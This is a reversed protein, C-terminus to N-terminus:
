TINAPWDTHSEYLSFHEGPTDCTFAVAYTGAYLDVFQQITLPNKNSLTGVLLWSLIGTSAPLKFYLNLSFTGTGSTRKAIFFIRNRIATVSRTLDITAPFISAGSAQDGTHVTDSSTITRHLAFDSMRDAHYVSQDQLGPM